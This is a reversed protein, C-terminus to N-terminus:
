SANFVRNKMQVAAEIPCGTMGWMKEYLRGDAMRMQSLSASSGDGNFCSEYIGKRDVGEREDSREVFVHQREFFATVKEKGTVDLRLM